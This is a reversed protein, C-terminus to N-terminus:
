SVALPGDVGIRTPSQTTTGDSNSICLRGIQGPQLNSRVTLALVGAGNTSAGSGKDTLLGPTGPVPDDFWEWTLNPVSAAPTTGDALVLAVSVTRTAVPTATVAPRAFCANVFALYGPGDFVSPDSHNGSTAVVSVSRAWKAAATALADANAAKSVTTDAASAYMKLPLGSLSKMSRSLPDFGYAKGPWVGYATDIAAGYVGHMNALSCTPASGLFGIVEIRGSAIVNLATIGGMSVGWLLTRSINYNARMYRELAVIERVAQENGWAYGGGANSCAVIYGASTLAQIVAQKTAVTTVAIDNYAEGQGHCNIVLGTPVAASYGNPVLLCISAGYDADVTNITTYPLGASATYTINGPNTLGGNNTVGITKAGISAATYTFTGTPAGANVSVTTPAFTGGGGGDSPTVIVTGAIAGNAGVTFNTSALSVTGATPGSITVATAASSSATYTITSPNTLGGNNTVGITKAGVSSATYTFTGTTTGATLSISPPTFTGGAGGDNPTVVLTGGIAGGSVGVAFNSSAVGATGTTPGTLTVNTAGATFDYVLGNRLFSLPTPEYFWIGPLWTNASVTSTGSACVVKSAQWTNSSTLWFGDSMRQLRAQVTSAGTDTFEIEFAYTGTPLGAPMSVSAIDTGGAPTLRMKLDSKRWIWSLAQGSNTAHARIEIGVIADGAQATYNAELRFGYPINGTIVWGAPQVTYRASDGNAGLRIGSPTALPAGSNGSRSAWVEGSGESFSSLAVNGGGSIGTFQLLTTM